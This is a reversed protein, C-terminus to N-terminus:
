KVAKLFEKARETTCNDYFGRPGSEVIRGNEMFVNLDGIERAFGFEHTVVVITMGTEAVERMSKLVEGVLEPDLASTPEDFLIVDPDLALARAIAVRQQQGGSLESPYHGARELLGVKRLAEAAHERADSMSKGQAKRQPLAVNDLACLHPFLNFQQFVMGVKRRLQLKTGRKLNEDAFGPGYEVGDVKLSGKTPEELLNISRLVTSKGSGSPGFLVVHEGQHIDLNIGHLVETQGFSKHLGRIQVIPTKVANGGAPRM